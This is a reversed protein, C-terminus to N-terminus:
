EKVESGTVTSSAKYSEPLPMWAIVVIPNDEIDSWTKTSEYYYGMGVFGDENTWLVAGDEVEYCSRYDCEDPLRESVPIWGTKPQPTVPPLKSIREKLLCGSQGDECTNFSCENCSIGECITTDCVAQRSIADGSQEKYV